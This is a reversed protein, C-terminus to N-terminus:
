RGRITVDGADSRAQISHQALDYRVIGSISTDGADTDADLAYEARPLEIEVDGADTEAHLSSPATAFTLRVDGADSTATVAAASLRTGEVDGAESAVSVSGGVGTVSIEGAGADVVVELDRPVQIRYDTECRFVTWGDCDNGLRLVGGAVTMEPSPEDTIWRTTERVTVRDADTGVVQVDGADSAVIVKRVEQSITFQETKENDLVTNVAYLGGGLGALSVIVAGAAAAIKAKTSM